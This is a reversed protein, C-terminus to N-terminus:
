AAPRGTYLLPFASRLHRLKPADHAVIYAHRPNRRMFDQHYPEASWFGGSELTTVIPARFSGARRLQGIYATAAARQRATQPFIASRYQRGHDPGQRNLQTPDHAVAFLIHLLQAYSIRRPDYTIRVAEAHQTRGASVADYNADSARGGAYGAEVRVVGAVHEFVGEVGWFCGAAFVAVARSGPEAANGTPPPIAVAAAAIASEPAARDVTSAIFPIALAAGGALLLSLIGARRM